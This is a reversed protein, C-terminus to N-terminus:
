RFTLNLECTLAHQLSFEFYLGFFDFDFFDFFNLVFLLLKARM